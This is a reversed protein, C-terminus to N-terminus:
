CKSKSSTANFSSCTTLYALTDNPLIKLVHGKGDSCYAAILPTGDDITGLARVSTVSACAHGRANITAQAMGEMSQAHAATAVVATTLSVAIKTKM